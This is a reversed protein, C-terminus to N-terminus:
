FHCCLRWISVPFMLASSLGQTCGALLASSQQSCMSLVAPITTTPNHDWPCSFLHCNSQAAGCGPQGPPSCCCSCLTHVSTPCPEERLHGAWCVARGRQAGAEGPPTATTHSLSVTLDLSDLCSSSSLKEDNFPKDIHAKLLEVLSDCCFM